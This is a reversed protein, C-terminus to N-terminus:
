WWRQCGPEGPTKHSALTEDLGISTTSWTLLCQRSVQLADLQAQLEETQQEAMEKDLVLEEKDMTMMEVM